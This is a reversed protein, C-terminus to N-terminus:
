SLTLTTCRIFGGGKLLENVEPSYVKLGKAELAAKLKPAHSSMVVAEGTSVLNCGFGHMAEEVSVEIKELDTIARIAAQSHPEFADPCWAICAPSIVALALDLDYYFSDPWGTVRNNVPVGHTDLQPVTKLSIVKLGLHKQLIPHVLPSTRYSSGVFLYDGCPLADGQGSFHLDKTLKIIEYGRAELVAQAYPEEEERINPLNSMVAKNGVILAWNATYVGDQCNKPPEVITVEVGSQKLFEAIQAHEQAALSIDVAIKDNMHANIAYSDNFFQTGSMIVHKNIVPM